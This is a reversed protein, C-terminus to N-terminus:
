HQVVLFTLNRYYYSDHSLATRVSFYSNTIFLFDPFATDSTNPSSVTEALVTYAAISFSM